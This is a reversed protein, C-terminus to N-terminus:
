DASAKLIMSLGDKLSQRAQWRLKREAKGADGCIDMVENKREEGAGIVPKRIGSVEMALEAIEGVSVSIGGAINYIETSNTELSFMLARVLDDIYVYDRKPALSKLQIQSASNDLLQIVIQPILFQKSQGPGYINFPRFITAQVGFNEDYFLCLQEALYKSHNYPSNPAIPHREDIPLYQPQGYVYTSMFTMACANKRCLELVNETGMVNVRYFEKPNKWSHPVFTLAALHFVHELGTFDLMASAIDGDSVDFTVVDHNEAALAATLYKGVFGDAGTVLIRKSM